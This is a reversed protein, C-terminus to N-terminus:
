LKSLGERASEGALTFFFRAGHQPESEVWIKGGHREVIKKAIALGIGSGPVHTTAHGRHFLKFVGDRSEPSIGVGNDAVQFLWGGAAPEARIRIVPPQASRFKIANDILNQFLQQLQRHNGPVSPLGPADIVAGSAEIARSLNKQAERLAEACDVKEATAQERGARSYALLDCILTEMRKAGDVAYGVYKHAKADLADRYRRELLELYSTVARLPERLDHSATYAFQELDENSRKLDLETKRRMRIETELRASTERSHFLWLLTLGFSISVAIGAVLFVEDLPDLEGPRHLTRCSMTVWWNTGLVRVTAADATPLSGADMDGTSHVLRGGDFLCLTSRSGYHRLTIDVFSDIPFCAILYGLFQRGTGVPLVLVFGMRGGLLPLIRTAAPAGTARAREFAARRAPQSGLSKGIASEFSRLPQVWRVTLEPSVFGIGQLIPLSRLLLASEIAWQDEPEPGYKEIRYALGQLTSAYLSLR